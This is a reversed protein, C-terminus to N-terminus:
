KLGFQKKIKNLLDTQLTKALEKVHKQVEGFLKKREKADLAEKAVSKVAEVKKKATSKTKDVKKTVEKKAKTAAATADKKAATVKKTVKAKTQKATDVAKDVTDIVKTEAATKVENM